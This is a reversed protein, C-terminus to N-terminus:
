DKFIKPLVLWLKLIENNIILTSATNKIRITWTDTALYLVLFISSVIINRTTSYCCTDESKESPRTQQKFPRSTRNQLSERDSFRVFFALMWILFGHMCASGALVVAPWFSYGHWISVKVVCLAQHHVIYFPRMRPGM